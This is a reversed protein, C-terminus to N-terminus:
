ELFTISLMRGNVLGGSLKTGDLEKLFFANNGRFAYIIYPGKWLNEFKGHKGKDERRSDWKLVKDGMNFDNAKTRKDFIKNTNEQVVQTRNYVEERSQQLQITQYIRRQIDNPESQVEQLVKMVPLGMSSPFISDIGYVLHFPSMVISKKTTLRNACLAYILKNHWSKKNDELIKKIINVLSKNSSEDLGNAQPYHTTSHGLSIHYKHCFDVM